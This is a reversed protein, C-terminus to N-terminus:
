AYTSGSIQQIPGPSAFTKKNQKKNFIINSAPIVKSGAKKGTIGNKNGRVSNSKDSDETLRLPSCMEESVM